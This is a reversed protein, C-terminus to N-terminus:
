VNTTSVSIVCTGTAGRAPQWVHAGPYAACARHLRRGQVRPRSDGDDGVDGAPGRQWPQGHGSPFM